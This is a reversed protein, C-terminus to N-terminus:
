TRAAILLVVGIALKLGLPREDPGLPTLRARIAEDRARGRAYAAGCTAPAGGARRRARRRLRAAGARAGRGPRRREGRPAAAAEAGDPLEDEHPRETDPM